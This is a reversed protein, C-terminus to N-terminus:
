RSVPVTLVPSGHGKTASEAISVSWLTAMLRFFQKTFQDTEDIYFWNNRHKVAVIANEPKSKSRSIRLQKGALGVPPYSAAIGRRLDEESVEVAASLIQMLDFVSRTILGIGGHNRADLALFVPLIMQAAHDDPVPLGLLELLEHVEATYSPAYHDIVVSFSGAQQPDEFWFLRQARTLVTMIAVFREFRPDADNTAFLFDPNRIGNVNSVLTTYINDPNFLTGALQAFSSVPLPSFLQRSYKAGQVPVYSITPNEEYVAGAGFPTLNGSYNDQDGFGLEVGTSASVRVNATVSAVALLSGREEYRNNVIELLLQQNDTLSIAKNYELRGSRIASPGIVSCGALLGGLVCITLLNRGFQILERTPTMHM